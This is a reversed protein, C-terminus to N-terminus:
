GVVQVCPLADAHLYIGHVGTEQACGLLHIANAIQVSHIRVSQAHYIGHHGVVALDVGRIRGLQAGGHGLQSAAGVDECRVEGFGGDDQALGDAFIPAAGVDGVFFRVAQYIGEHRLSRLVHHELADLALALRADAVEHAALVALREFRM